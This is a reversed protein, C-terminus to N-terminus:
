MSDIWSLNFGRPALRQRLSQSNRQSYQRWKRNVELAAYVESTRLVRGDGKRKTHRLGFHAHFTSGYHIHGKGGTGVNWQEKINGSEDYFFMSSINGTRWDVTAYVRNKALTKDPTKNEIARASVLVKVEGLVSPIKTLAEFDTGYGRARYLAMYEKSKVM